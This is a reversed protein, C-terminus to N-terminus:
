DLDDIRSSLDDMGMSLDYISSEIKTVARNFESLTCYTGEVDLKLEDIDSSMKQLYLVVKNRFTYEDDNLIDFEIREDFEKNKKKKPKTKFQELNMLSELVDTTNEKEIFNNSNNNNIEDDLYKKKIKIPKKKGGDM